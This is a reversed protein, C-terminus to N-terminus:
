VLFRLRTKRIGQAAAASLVFTAATIILDHVNPFLLYLGYFLLPHLLYIGYTLAGLQFSLRDTKGKRLFALCVLPLAIVYSPVLRTYHQQYLRALGGLVVINLLVAFFLRDERQELTLILGLMTGLLVAPLGFLWQPLPTPLDGRELLFSSFALSLLTAVFGILIFFYTHKKQYALKLGYVIVSALFAYPLYWLHISMGTVLHSVSFLGRLSQGYVARKAVLAVLYILSWIFWPVLLRRMRRVTYERLPLNTKQHFLLGVFIMLFVPLGSYGIRRLLDFEVGATHFLVIGFAALFRLREVNIMREGPGTVPKRLPQKPPALPLREGLSPLDSLIVPEKM